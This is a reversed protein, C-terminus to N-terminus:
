NCTLILFALDPLFATMLSSCDLSGFFFIHSCSKETQYCVSQGSLDRDEPTESTLM